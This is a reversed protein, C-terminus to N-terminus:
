DGVYGSLHSTNSASSMRSQRGGRLMLQRYHLDRGRDSLRTGAPPGAARGTASTATVAIRV